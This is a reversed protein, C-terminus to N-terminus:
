RGSMGSYGALISLRALSHQILYSCRSRTPNKELFAFRYLWRYGPDLVRKEAIRLQSVPNLGEGKNYEESENTREGQLRITSFDVVALYVYPHICAESKKFTQTRRNRRGLYNM